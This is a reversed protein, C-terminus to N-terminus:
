RYVEEDVIYGIRGHVMTNRATEAAEVAAKAGM